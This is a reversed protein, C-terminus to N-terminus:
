KMGAYPKLLEIIKEAIQEPTGSVTDDPQASRYALTGKWRGNEAEISLTAVYAPTDNKTVCLVCNGGKPLASVRIDKAAIHRGIEFLANRIRGSIEKEATDAVEQELTVHTTSYHNIKFNASYSLSLPSDNLSAFKFM